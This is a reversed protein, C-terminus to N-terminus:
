FFPKASAQYILECNGDSDSTVIFDVDQQRAKIKDNNVPVMGMGIGYYYRKCKLESYRAIDNEFERSERARQQKDFDGKNFKPKNEFLLCVNKNIAIIDPKISGKLRGREVEKNKDSRFTMGSGGGPIDMAIVKWGLSRLWNSICTTVHEETLTYKLRDGRGGFFATTFFCQTM